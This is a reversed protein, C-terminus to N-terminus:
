RQRDKGPGGIIRDRAADGVLLDNGSAGVLLDAGPGGFIRDRGPGGYLRDKGSRGVVTDNGLGGYIRDNGSGGSIRDLGKEGKVLDNGGDGSARDNGSQGGVRDNGAQGGVRDNGSGGLLRDRGDGGRARDNGAGADVRDNGGGADIVDAGGACKIVDDGGGAMVTDNGEGCNIVDNGPTGNIVDNGPTGNITSGAGVTNTPQVSGGDGSGTPCGDATNAPQAPCRDSADPTGDGDTDASPASPFFVSASGQATNAGMDDAPAGAVIVDEDIALSHGFNDGAAGDLAGLRATESRAAPGTRTFLYAAGQDSSLGVDHLPAGAIIKGGDIAVSRGFEDAEAGNSATLKATETRTPLGARAFTYAAGYNDDLGARDDGSAGAVITDADIGVSLGLEDRPGADSANLKATETRTPLGTRAFTYVAGERTSDGDDEHAGAVITDGDIAVSVGLTDLGAGDSATLKAIQNRAPTGTRSFTYVSGQSFGDGLDDGGAGAVITDGDIAVSVGLGDNPGGDSATLKATETRAPAGTRSFTYAAGQFEDDGVKASIAGAVITDGEIAVSTGFNDGAARDSATLRATQVWTNGSRVFVYAAGRRADDGPAGIVATNGDVAVSDGLVDSAAGGTALLKQEGASASTPWALVAALAM